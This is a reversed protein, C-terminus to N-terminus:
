RCGCGTLDAVFRDLAARAAWTGSAPPVSDAVIVFDLEREDADVTTGLLASAGTLTGTKARAIGAASSAPKDLFRDHLTGDLGAVPLKALVDALGPLAGTRARAVVDSLLAVTATQGYTLGSTDLLRTGALDFRLDRLTKTVYATNTSFSGDGGAKMAAQRALNETLANDSEDLATALVERYPASDVTGLVAAGAPAPTRRSQPSDAVTVDLGREHLRDALAALASAGPDAPSPEGPRPRQAALGIMHVGQTYGAAVDAPNWGPPLAAGADYTADLRLTWPLGDGAPDAGSAVSSGRSSTAGTQTSGTAPGGSPGASLGLAAVVQDALDGLGAHGAASDPDGANRGLLTDGGAVLTLDRDGSRVVRTTMVANLDLTQTVAAATLIKATSAVVRPQATGVAYLEQGTRADRISVGIDSGLAPAGLAAALSRELGAKTPLPADTPLGALLAKADALTPLPVLTPAPGSPTAAPPPPTPRDRTLVGPVLDYVDAAAYAGLLSLSLM